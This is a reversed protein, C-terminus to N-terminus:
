LKWESRFGIVPTGSLTLYSASVGMSLHPSSRWMLGAAVLPDNLRDKQEPFGQPHRTTRAMGVGLMAEWRDSVPVYGLVRAGFAGDFTMDRTAGSSPADIIVPAVVFGEVGWYRSGRWGAALQVSLPWWTHSDLKLAAVDYSLQVKGTDSTADDQAQAHVHAQALALGALAAAAARRITRM